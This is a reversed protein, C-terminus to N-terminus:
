PTSITPTYSIGTGVQNTLAADSYWTITGTPVSTVSLTKDDVACVIRSPATPAPPAAVVEIDVYTSVYEGDAWNCKNWNKLYVRFYEGPQCTSPITIAESHSGPANPSPSYRGSVQPADGLSSVVVTGTITNYVNGTPDQGYLWELNRESDNPVPSLGGPLVPTQCNWNSNDRLALITETGACVQIVPSGTVDNVIELYGDGDSPVDRGHVVAVYQVSRTEGCPNRIDNTFVYNCDTTSTYTHTRLSLPPLDNDTVSTYTNVTGDGWDMIWETGKLIGNVLPDPDLTVVNFRATAGQNICSVPQSFGTLVDIMPCSLTTTTLRIPDAQLIGSSSEAVIYVTHFKNASFVDIVTQLVTNINTVPIVATAVRHGTPGSIAASRVSSSNISWYVDVDYVIIYVTGLRDIGYNVPITM